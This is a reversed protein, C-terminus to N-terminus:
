IQPQFRQLLYRVALHALLQSVIHIFIRVLFSVLKRIMFHALLAGLFLLLLHRSFQIQFTMPDPSFDVPHMSSQANSTVIHLAELMLLTGISNIM